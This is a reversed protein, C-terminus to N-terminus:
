AVAEAIQWATGALTLRKMGRVGDCVLLKDSKASFSRRAAEAFNFSVPQEQRLRMLFDLEV